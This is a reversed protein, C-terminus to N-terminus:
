ERAQSWIAALRAARRVKYDRSTSYRSLFEVAGPVMCSGIAELTEILQEGESQEAIRQLALVADTGGVYGLGRIVLKLVEADPDKVLRLLRALCAPKNEREDMGMIAAKRINANGSSLWGDVFRENEDGGFYPRLEWQDHYGSEVLKVVAERVRPDTRDACRLAVKNLDRDKDKLGTVILAVYDPVARTSLAELVVARVAPDPDAYRALIQETSLPCKPVKSFDVLTELAAARVKGVNDKLLALLKAEGRQDTLPDIKSVIVAQASARWKGRFRLAADWDLVSKSLKQQVEYRFLWNESDMLPGLSSLADEDSMPSFLELGSAMHARAGSALLGRVARQVSPDEKNPLVALANYAVTPDQDKALELLHAVHSKARQALANRAYWTFSAMACNGCMEHLPGIETFPTGMACLSFIAANRVARDSSDVNKDILEVVDRYLTSLVVEKEPWVSNAMYYGERFIEDGRAVWFKMATVRVAPDSNSLAGLYFPIRKPEVDNELRTAYAIKDAVVSRHDQGSISVALALVMYFSAKM